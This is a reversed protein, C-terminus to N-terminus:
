AVVSMASRDNNYNLAEYPALLALYSNHIRNPTHIIPEIPM